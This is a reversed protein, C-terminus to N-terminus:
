RGFGAFIDTYGEIKLLLRRLGVMRLAVPIYAETGINMLIEQMWEQRPKPSGAVQSALYLPWITALLHTGKLPGVQFSPPANSSSSWVSFLSLVSSCIDEVQRQILRNLELFIPQDKRTKGPNLFTRCRLLLISTIITLTRYENWRTSIL